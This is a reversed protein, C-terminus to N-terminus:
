KLLGMLFPLLTLISGIIAGIGLWVAARRNRRDNYISLYDAVSARKIRLTWHKCRQENKRWAKSAVACFETSVFDGPKTSIALARSFVKKVIGAEHLKRLDLFDQNSKATADASGFEYRVRLGCYDCKNPLKQEVVVFSERNARIFWCVGCSGCGKRQGEVPFNKSNFSLLSMSVLQFTQPMNDSDRHNTRPFGM